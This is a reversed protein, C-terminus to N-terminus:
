PTGCIPGPGLQDEDFAVDPVVGPSRDLAHGRVVWGFDRQELLLRALALAVRHAGSEGDGRPSM